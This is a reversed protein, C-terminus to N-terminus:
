QPLNLTFILSTIQRHLQSSQVIKVLKPLLHPMNSQNVKIKKLNEVRGCCTYEIGSTGRSGIGDLTEQFEM